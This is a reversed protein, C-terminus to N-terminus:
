SYLLYQKNTFNNVTPNLYIYFGKVIALHWTAKDPIGSRIQGLLVACNM